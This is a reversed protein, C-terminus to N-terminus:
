WAVLPALVEYFKITVGMLTEGAILGSAIVVTFGAAFVPNVRQVVWALVAGLFMNFSYLFPVMVAVGAGAVSPMWKKVRHPLVAEAIAMLSGAGGAWAMAVLKHQEIHDLGRSLLEAVKAWIVAAPAPWEKGGLDNPDVLLSYAVAAFVAGIFIGMTQAVVQYRPNAGLQYGTKMDTLLDGVQSAAGGTVSAAMLNPVIQGKLVGGFVLQTVKGMAGVPTIDTEGTSRAAVFSLGLALVVALAGFLPPIDFYSYQLAISISGVILLGIWFWRMPVEVDALGEAVEDKDGSMTRMLGGIMRPAQLLLGVLSHSVMLAVGPWLTWGTIDRYGLMAATCTQGDPVKGCTIYGADFLWEPGWIFAVAAAVLMSLTVRIGMIAGAGLTWVETGLAVTWKALQGGAIAFQGPILGMGDKFLAILAAVVGSALLAKAKQLGEGASAHLSTLTEACAIGSPFRLREQNILKRKVPIAAVVGVLCVGVLWPIASLVDLQVKGDAGREYLAPVVGSDKTVMYLAPIAAVLGASTMYAASSAATQMTNNELVTFHEHEPLGRIKQWTTFFAYALIASTISAGLGWGTKLGVYLNSFSMVGGIICGTALARATLQPMTDAQYVNALWWRDHELTPADEAPQPPLAAPDAM